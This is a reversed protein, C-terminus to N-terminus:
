PPRGCESEGSTCKQGAETKFQKEVHEGVQPRAVDTIIFRTGANITEAETIFANKM